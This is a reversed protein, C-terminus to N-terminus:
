CETEWCETQAFGLDVAGGVVTGLGIGYTAKLKAELDTIAMYLGDRVQGLKKEGLSVKQDVKTMSGRINRLLRLEAVDFLQGLDAASVGALDGDTVSAYSAVNLGLSGLGERLPGTTAALPSGTTPKGVFTLLGGAREVLEADAQARTVAPM